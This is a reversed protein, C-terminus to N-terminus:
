SSYVTNWYFYLLLIQLRRNKKSWKSEKPNSEWCQLNPWYNITWQVATYNMNKAFGCCLCSQRRALTFPSILCCSSPDSFQKKMSPEWVRPLTWLWLLKYDQSLQKHVLLLPSYRLFCYWLPPCYFILYTSWFWFSYPLPNTWECSDKYFWDISQKMRPASFNISTCVSLRPNWSHMSLTSPFSAFSSLGRVQPLPLHTESPTEQRNGGTINTIM